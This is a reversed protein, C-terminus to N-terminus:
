WPKEAVRRPATDPRAIRAGMTFPGRLGPHDGVVRPNGVCELMPLDSPHDGYAFCDRPDIGDPHDRLVEEVAARKSEGIMQRVVEGTYRGDRVVPVTALVRSAGLHRAVPDLLPAFAGSVLLLQAGAAQHRRIEALTSAIFFGPDAARETAFWERGLAETEAVSDGAYERYYDRNLVERPEGAAARECLRGAVAAYRAAGEDPGYRHVFRLRLLDFMSKRSILTEDVDSFVLYAAVPQPYDTVAATM